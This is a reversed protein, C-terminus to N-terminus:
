EEQTPLFEEPPYWPEGPNLYKIVKLLLHTLKKRM